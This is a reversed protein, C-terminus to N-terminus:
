KLSSRTVFFLLCTHPVFALTLISWLVMDRAEGTNNETLERVRDGKAKRALVDELSSIKAKYALMEADMAGVTGVLKM